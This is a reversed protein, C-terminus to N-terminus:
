GLMPQPLPRGIATGLAQSWRILRYEVAWVSKTTSTISTLFDADAECLQKFAAVVAERAALAAEAVTRDTFYFAIVDFVARNIRTEFSIGNWKRFAEREGFIQQATGIIWDLDKFQSTINSSAAAWRDNMMFTTYDLISKMSGNYTGLFNRFAIYRLAIENDRMRFDPKTLNLIAKLAKSEIVYENLATTFPGPHLAQRLEQPSLQVSGSNIRL